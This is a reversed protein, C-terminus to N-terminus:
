MRTYWSMRPSCWESPTNTMVRGIMPGSFWVWTSSAVSAYSVISQSTFCTGSLLPLTPTM